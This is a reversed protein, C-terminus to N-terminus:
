VQSGAEPGDLLQWDIPVDSDGSLGLLSQDILGQLEM